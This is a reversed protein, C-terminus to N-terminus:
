RRSPATRLSLQRQGQLQAPKDPTISVSAWGIKIGTETHGM